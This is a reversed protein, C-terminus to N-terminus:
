LLKRIEPPTFHEHWWAVAQAKTLDTKINGDPHGDASHTIRWLYFSGDDRQCLSWAMDEERHPAHIGSGEFGCALKERIEQLRNM